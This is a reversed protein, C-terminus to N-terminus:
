TQADARVAPDARVSGALLEAKVLRGHGVPRVAPGLLGRGLWSFGLLGRGLRSL